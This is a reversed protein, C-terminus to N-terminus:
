SIIGEIRQEAEGWERMANFVLFAEFRHLDNTHIPRPIITGSSVLRKWTTGALLPHVPTYWRDGKRFAINAISTDTIYGNRTILIDDVHGRRSYLEELVARNTYKFAYNYGAPAEILRLSHVPHFEYPSFDVELSNDDYRIRCRCTGECPIRCSLLIDFLPYVDADSIKGPYFHRLTAEVRQQHWPLHMPKGEEIRITELFRSM